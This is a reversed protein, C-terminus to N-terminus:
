CAQFILDIIEKTESLRSERLLRCSAEMEARIKILEVRKKEVRFQWLSSLFHAISWVIPFKQKESLEFNLTLISTPTLNPIVKKLGQVLVTSAAQNDECELMAHQLTEIIPPTTRCRKCFPSQNPLIRSVREATPLIKQLLKFLFTTLNPGLMSLRAMEWTSDWQTTTDALEIRLPNLKQSGNADETMTVEEVLFRYIQRLSIKAVNLPSAHIRRIAPFFDGKFYPPISPMSTSDELVYSKFLAEHFQNRRFNPNCATELFCNIHHAQARQQVHHLGLGGHKTERYLALEEPKELIDAYLWAKAQKNIAKIDGVRLDICTSRHWLKSFAYCNLSHPRMSLPMFKGARWPGVVNKMKEQLEDGNTKRTGMYTAKLTVGLMDLHDSLSFFNCPLDEQSLTGKWRGLALFKCKGANPDRHMKCGSSKEFLSMASDVTIFEQMSTIAPKVDDCYAILTYRLERPPLPPSPHPLKPGQVPLSHILIGQLRKDLYDLVPDIGYTFWEMSAKDGQRISLRVNKIVKGSVNNVVVISFNDTYLNTARSIAEECMGKKRLVLQVWSMVMWDFAAILDTDLIGCGVRSKRAAQIADRAMAIGHHIKRDGGAVLQLPSVTHPMVKRLRKAEIGTITKFDVNLLSIKRKDKPKLSKLKKPKAGFVMLSTRQSATPKQGKFVAQVVETLPDGLLDWCQQYLFATLGDTGPAAHQNSDWLVEKVEKKEPIDCLMANDEDTFVVEVESLLAHQAAPDLM